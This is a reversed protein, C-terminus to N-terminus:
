HFGFIYNHLGFATVNDGRVLLFVAKENATIRALEFSEGNILYGDFTVNRADLALTEAINETGILEEPVVEPLKLIDETFSLFITNLAPYILFTGLLIIAPAIFIIPRIGERLRHPFTAIVDNAVWFLAWIGAVGVTLAVATIILKSTLPDLGSAALDAAAQEMGLLEFLRLLLQEPAEPDRMFGVSWRLGLFVLAAVGLSILVRIVKGLGSESNQKSGNLRDTVQAMMIIEVQTM